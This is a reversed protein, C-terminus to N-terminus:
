SRTSGGPALTAFFAGAAPLTVRGGAPMCPDFGHGALPTVAAGAPLTVTVTVPAAGFNFAALLARGEHERLFCLADDPADLFRM